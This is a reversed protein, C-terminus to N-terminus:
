FRRQARSGAETPLLNATKRLKDTAIASAIAIVVMTVLFAGESDFRRSIFVGVFCLLGTRATMRLASVAMDLWGFLHKGTHVARHRFAWLGALASYIAFFLFGPSTIFMFQMAESNSEEVAIYLWAQYFEASRELAEAKYTIAFPTLDLWDSLPLGLPFAFHGQSDLRYSATIGVIAAIGGLVGATLFVLLQALLFLLPHRNTPIPFDILRRLRSFRTHRASRWRQIDRYVASRRDVASEVAQPVISFWLAAVLARPAQDTALWRWATCALLAVSLVQLLDKATDSADLYSAKRAVTAILWLLLTTGVTALGAFALAGDLAGVEVGVIPVQGRFHMWGAGLPALLGLVGIFLVPGIGKRDESM